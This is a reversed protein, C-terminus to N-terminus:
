CCSVAVVVVIVCYCGVVCGSERGWCCARGDLQGSSLALRGLCSFFAGAGTSPITPTSLVGVWTCTSTFLPTAQIVVGAGAAAAGVGATNGVRDGGMSARATGARNGTGDRDGAMVVGVVDATDQM